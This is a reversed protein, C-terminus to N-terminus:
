WDYRKEAKGQDGTTLYIGDDRAEWLMLQGFRLHYPSEEYAMIERVFQINVGHRLVCQHYTGGFVRDGFEFTYVDVQHLFHLGLDDEDSRCHVTLVDDNSSLNNRFGIENKPFLLSANNSVACLATVIFFLILTNM